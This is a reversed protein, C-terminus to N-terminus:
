TLEENLYGRGCLIKIEHQYVQSRAVERVAYIDDHVSKEDRWSRANHAFGPRDYRTYSDM